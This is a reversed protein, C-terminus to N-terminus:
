AAASSSPVEVHLTVIDTDHYQQHRVSSALHRLLRLSVDREIPMDGTQDELVAIRDQLNEDGVAVLFELRAVARGEKRATIRLMRRARAEDADEDRILTLMTEESAADLRDAMARDWGSRRAFELLFERMAPLSAITFEAQFRRPRPSTVEVFLTLLIATLGGVTMGNNLLGGAFVAIWEPFVMDNQVAVGVWFSIGVIM